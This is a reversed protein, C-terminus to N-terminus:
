VFTLIISVAVGIFTVIQLAMNMKSTKQQAQQATQLQEILTKQAKVESQLTHIEQQLAEKTELSIQEAHTNSQLVARVSQQVEEHLVTLEQMNTMLAKKVQGYFQESQQILQKLNMLENNNSATLEAAIQRWDAQIQQLATESNKFTTSFNTVIKEFHENQQLSTQVLQQHKNNISDFDTEYAQIQAKLQALFTENAQQHADSIFNVGNEFANAFSELGNDFSAINEELKELVERTNHDNASTTRQILGNLVTIKDALEMELNSIEITLSDILQLFRENMPSLLVDENLKKLSTLAEEYIKDPNEYEHNFQTKM